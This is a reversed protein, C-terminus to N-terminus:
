SRYFTLEITHHVGDNSVHMEDTMNRILFLGWGRPSELGALKRELDPTTTEPIAKSGGYDIIRIVVKSASVLMHINVDLEPQYRNGHEIANLTAEAVATKFPEVKKEPLYARAAEAIESMAVREKGPTSSYTFDQQFQWEDNHM